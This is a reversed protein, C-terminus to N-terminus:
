PGFFIPNTVGFPLRGPHVPELTQTQDNRNQITPDYAGRAHFVVWDTGDPVMVSESFFRRVLENDIEEDTGIAIETSTIAGATSTWM